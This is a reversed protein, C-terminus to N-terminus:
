FAGILSRYVEQHAFPSTRSADFLIADPAKEENSIRLEDIAFASNHGSHDSALTFSSEGSGPAPMEGNHETALAGDVYIRQRRERSSYSFAVHHWEGAQWTSIDYGSVGTVKNGIVSGAYFGRFTGESFLFQDNNASQYLVLVHNYKTYIPDTGDFQPSIWMEITGNQFDLNSAVPFSLIGGKGVALASGWKGPVFSVEKSQLPETGSTSALTNDFHFLGLETHPTRVNGWSLNKAQEASVTVTYGKKRLWGEGGAKLLANGSTVFDEAMQLKGYTDLTDILLRETGPQGKRILFTYSAVALEGDGSKLAEDLANAAGTDQIEALARAAALRVYKDRNHRFTEILRGVAAPGITALVEAAHTRLVTSDLAEILPEIAMDGLGVLASGAEYPLTPLVTVLLPASRRDRLKGLARVAAVRVGRDGESKLVESLPGFARRDRIEGLGTAAARRIAANPDTLVSILPGVADPARVAALRQAALVRIRDDHPGTLDEILEEANRKEPSYRRDPSCSCFVVLAMM